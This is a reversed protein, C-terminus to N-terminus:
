RKTKSLFSCTQKLITCLDMNNVLIKQKKVSFIKRLREMRAATQGGADLVGTNTMAGDGIVIVYNLQCDSDPDLISGGANNDKFYDEAIQSFAHSDTGWAMGLPNLVDM